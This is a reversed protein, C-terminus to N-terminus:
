FGFTLGFNLWDYMREVNVIEAKKMVHKSSAGKVPLWYVWLYDHGYMAIGTIDGISLGTKNEAATFNYTIEAETATGDQGSAGMFLLEGPAFGHFTDSNIKGTAQALTRAYAITVVASPHRYTCSLKLAPVVIDTGTIETNPAGLLNNNTDSGVPYVTTAKSRVVHMTGGTTDFTFRFDGLEYKKQAYPVTVKWLEFGIPELQVDQRYLTGLTTSVVSGTAAIAYTGVYAADSTGAATYKATYTPPNATSARSDRSETFRFLSM